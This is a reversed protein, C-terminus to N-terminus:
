QRFECSRTNSTFTFSTTNQVTIYSTGNVFDYTNLVNVRRQYNEAYVISTSGSYDIGRLTLIDGSIDILCYPTCTGSTLAFEGSLQHYSNIRDKECSSISICAIFLIIISLNAKM